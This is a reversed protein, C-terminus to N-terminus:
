SILLIKTEQVLNDRFSEYRSILVDPMATWNYYDAIAQDLWGKSILENFTMEFKRIASVAVDRIDRYSYVVKAGNNLCEQRLDPLCIHAKFVAFQVTYNDRIQAFNSEEVYPVRMGCNAAEVIASTLQYQVTSGSRIMGSCFVWTM